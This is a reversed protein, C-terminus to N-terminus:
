QYLTSIMMMEDFHLKNKDNYLQFIAWKASIFYLWIQGTHSEL